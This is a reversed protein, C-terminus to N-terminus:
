KQEILANKDPSIGNNGKIDNRKIDNRVLKAIMQRNLRNDM